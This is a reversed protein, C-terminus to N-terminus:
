GVCVFEIECPLGYVSIRFTITPAANSQTKASPCPISTLRRARLPARRKTRRGANLREFLPPSLSSQLHVRNRKAALPRASM